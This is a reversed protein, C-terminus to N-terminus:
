PSKLTQALVAKLRKRVEAETTGVLEHLLSGQPGYIRVIPLASLGKLHELAVPRDFDPVEIKRVALKQDQSALQSLTQAIHECPHCWAAWYDLVTVKGLVLVDQLRYSAGALAADSVDINEGKIPTLADHAHPEHSPTAADDDFSYSLGLGLLGPMQLQGGRSEQLVTKKLDMSLLFRPSIAYTVGLSVLVDSLGSNRADQGRWQAPTEHRGIVQARFRWDTLGLRHGVGFGANLSSRGRYGFGNEYVAIRASAWSMLAFGSTNYYIELGALPDFTGSGYFLHQHREGQRGLEFPDPETGGSPITTGLRVDLSLPFESDARLARYRGSLRLDGFGAIVEDRHHISTFDPLGVQQGDLFEAKIASVRFPANLDATLRDSLGYVAALELSM